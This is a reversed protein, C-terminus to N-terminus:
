SQMPNLSVYIGSLPDQMTSNKKIYSGTRSSLLSMAKRIVLLPGSGGTHHPTSIFVLLSHLSPSYLPATVTSLPM